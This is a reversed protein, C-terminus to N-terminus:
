LKPNFVGDVFQLLNYHIILFLVTFFYKLYNKEFLNSKKILKFYKILRYKWITREGTDLITDDGIDCIDAGTSLKPEEEKRYEDSQREFVGIKSSWSENCQM